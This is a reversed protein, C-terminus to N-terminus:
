HSPPAGKNNENQMAESLKVYLDERKLNKLIQKQKEAGDADGAAVYCLGLELHYEGAGPDIALSKEFARIASGYEGKQYYLKGVKGSCFANEPNIRLSEEFAQLAMENDALELYLDGLNEWQSRDYPDHKLFEKMETAAQEKKGMKYYVCALHIHLNKDEPKLELLKKYEEAALKFSHEADFAYARQSHYEVPDFKRVAQQYFDESGKKVASDTAKQHFAFFLICLFIIAFAGWIIIEKRNMVAEAGSTYQGM